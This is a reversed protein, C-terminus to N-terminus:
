KEKILGLAKKLCDECITITLNHSRKFTYLKESFRIVRDVDKECEMCHNFKTGDAKFVEM